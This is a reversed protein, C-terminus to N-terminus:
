AAGGRQPAERVTMGQTVAELLSTVIHEGAELGDTVITTEKEIRGIRVPRIDLQHDHVVWVTNDERLASSPIVYSSPLTHGKIAVTVFTGPYLPINEAGVTFAGPVKLIIPAMRSKSDIQGEIRSVRGRWTLSEGGLNAFIKAESGTRKPGPLDFSALERSELPVRVEIEATSYVTALSKGITVFQGIDASENLVIGDFPLSIETRELQLRAAELQAKAAKIEAEAQRIQPKHLVLASSPEKGPHIANWEEEASRGEAQQTELQVEARIVAAEASEVALEYDRPDIKLLVEGSTFHGGGVLNPSVEVIKGSVQPVVTTMNRAYAEGTGQITILNDAPQVAVTEVLPGLFPREKRQPIKRTSALLGAGAIGLILVLIALLAHRKKM